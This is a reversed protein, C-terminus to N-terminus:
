VGTDGAVANSCMCSKRSTTRNVGGGLQTFSHDVHAPLVGRRHHWARRGSRGCLAVFKRFPISLEGAIVRALLQARRQERASMSIWDRQQQQQQQM